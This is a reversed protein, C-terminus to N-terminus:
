RRAGTLQRTRLMAIVAIGLAGLAALAFVTRAGPFLESLVGGLKNAMVVRGVTSGDFGTLKQSKVQYLSGEHEAEKISGDDLASKVLDDLKEDTHVGDPAVISLLMDEDLRIDDILLSADLSQVLTGSNEKTSGSGLFLTRAFFFGLSPPQTGLIGTKVLKDDDTRQLVITKERGSDLASKIWPLQKLDTHWTPSASTYLLRAKYDAVAVVIPYEKGALKRWLDWDTSALQSHIRELNVQDETAEGLGFDAQDRHSTTDRM